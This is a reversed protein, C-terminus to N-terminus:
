SSTAVTISSSVSVASVSAASETGTSGTSSRKRELRSPPDADRRHRRVRVTHATAILLMVAILVGGVAMAVTSNFASATGSADDETRFLSTQKAFSYSEGETIVPQGVNSLALCRFNLGSRVLFFGKCEDTQCFMQCAAITLNWDQQGSITVDHLRASADYARGFRFGPEAPSSQYAVQFAVAVPQGAEPAHRVFSEGSVHTDVATGLSSVGYCKYPARSTRFFVGLCRHEVLCLSLCKNRADNM